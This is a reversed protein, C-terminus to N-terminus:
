DRGRRNDRGRHHKDEFRERSRYERSDRRHGRNDWHREREWREWHRGLDEHAIYRGRYRPHRYDSPLGFLVGPVDHAAVYVWPGNYARAWYWHGHHPRYWHGHYFFIDLEVDPPYYVYTKPIVVVRPPRHIVVPPPPGPINIGIDINVEAFSRDSYGTLALFMVGLLIPIVARKVM